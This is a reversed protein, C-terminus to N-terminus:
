PDCIYSMKDRTSKSFQLTNQYFLSALTKVM